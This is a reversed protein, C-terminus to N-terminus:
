LGDRGALLLVLGVVLLLEILSFGGRGSQSPALASRLTRAPPASNSQALRLMPRKIADPMLKIDDDTDPQGDPRGLLAQLAPRKKTTPPPRSISWKTDSPHGWPDELKTGPKLYPGQWKEGLRPNEYNPKTTLANM